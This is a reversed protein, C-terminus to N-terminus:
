CHPMKYWWPLFAGPMSTVSVAIFYQVENKLQSYANLGAVVTYHGLLSVFSEIEIYTMSDFMYFEEALMDVAGGDSPPGELGVSASM